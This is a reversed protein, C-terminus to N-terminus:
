RGWGGPRKGVRKPGGGTFWRLRRCKRPTSCWLTARCFRSTRHLIRGTLDFVEVEFAERPHTIEWGRRRANWPGSRGPRCADGVSSVTEVTVVM